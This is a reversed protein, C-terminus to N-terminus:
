PAAEIRVIVYDPGSEEVRFRVKDGVRLRDLWAPDRVKFPMTMAPMGVNELPGHKITVMGRAKDVNRIQGESMAEPAAAFAPQCCLLVIGIVADRLTSSM